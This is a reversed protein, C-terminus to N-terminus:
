WSGTMCAAMQTSCAASIISSVTALIEEYLEQKGQAFHSYVTAPRIGVREAIKRLSAGEYGFRAFQYASERLLRERTASDKTRGM